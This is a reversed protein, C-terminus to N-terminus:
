LMPQCGLRAPWSFREGKLVELVTLATFSNVSAYGGLFHDMVCGFLFMDGASAYHDRRLGMTIDRGRVPSGRFLRDAPKESLEDIGEVRKKNALVLTQKQSDPFIYLDLLAQLNNKSALSLYNLSLHSILRWLFNTELPPVITQTLPKINSYTVFEPCGKTRVSIDGIRLRSPLTGNTCTLSVSLTERELLPVGQPYACALYLDIASNLLSMQRRTYYVPTTKVDPNFQDFPHYLREQTHGQSYGSVRDIAFIQYHDPNTGAPRVYYWDRTHDIGIPDADYPFINIVPTAFLHFQPPVTRPPQVPLSDFEFYIEFASGEGRNQWQEWGELDVYLFKDPAYFYEQLLRYGPFSHPPYPFLAAQKGFGADKLCSAPLVFPKGSGAPKLVIRHLHRMLLYYLDSAHGYDGSLFFRLKGPNWASLGPADLQMTIKIHPAQGSPQEFATNKISLSHMDVDYCIKFRCSTGDLPISDLLSGAPVVASQTIAARPQFVVTSMSPIPRLYHPWLLRILDQVIEPFEDDLKRRLLAIQFSVGELLREVDPDAVPGSLMPAVAPHARAFAAGLERLQDMEQKFYKDLMLYENKFYNLQEKNQFTKATENVAIM